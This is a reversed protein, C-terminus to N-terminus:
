TSSAKERTVAQAVTLEHVKRFFKRANVMGSLRHGEWLHNRRNWDNRPKFEYERHNKGLNECIKCVYYPTKIGRFGLRREGTGRM